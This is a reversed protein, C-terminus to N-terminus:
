DRVWTRLLAMGEPWDGLGSAANIHGKMGIESLRSGWAKACARSFEPTSYPDDSSAVVLTPFPLNALPVPGFGSAESPFAPGDPNVPAVLFAAEIRGLSPVPAQAAWHAVLLCALSHAVLVLRRERGSGDSRSADAASVADELKSVWANRDPREWDGLQVRRFAPDSAEWRTQWHEPGSNGYGPLILYDMRRADKM